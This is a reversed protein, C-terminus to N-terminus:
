SHCTLFLLFGLSSVGESTDMEVEGMVMKIHEPCDFTHNWKQTWHAM